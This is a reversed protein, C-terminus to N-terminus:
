LKIEYIRMATLNAIRDYFARARANDESTIWRIDSWNRQRRIEAVAHFLADAVGRGRYHEAVFADDIYGGRKGSLPRPLARFHILGILEGSPTRAVCGEFPDADDTLWRWVIDATETGEPHGYHLRYGAFLVGGVRGPRRAWPPDIVFDAPTTM